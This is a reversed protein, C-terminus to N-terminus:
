NVQSNNLGASRSNYSYQALVAVKIATSISVLYSSRAIVQMEKLKERKDDAELLKVIKKMDRKEQAEEDRVTKHM